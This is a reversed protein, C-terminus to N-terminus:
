EDGSIKYNRAERKQSVWEGQKPDYKKLIVAPNGGAVCYPPVDKNVLSCAAVVSHKGITVGKTIVSNAGIWVDDEIIIEKTSVGQVDITTETEKYNHDLGSVVVGQAFNVNNGIRVPGIVTNGLGIRSDKGIQIAGVLNNVVSYDEVVSREGISFSHFPVIDKRVSRYIVSGKGKKIYFPILVRLWWRPRTLVPHILISHVRKKTEPKRNLWKHIKEKM